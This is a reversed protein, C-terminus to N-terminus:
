SDSKGAAPVITSSLQACDTEDAIHRHSKGSRSSTRIKSFRVAAQPCHRPKSVADAVDFLSARFFNAM